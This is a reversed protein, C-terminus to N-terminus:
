ANQRGSERKHVREAILGLLEGLDLPKKLCADVHLRATKESLDGGSSFVIVPIAAIGPDQLQQVRFEFGDMVPMMLDLLVLSPPTPGRLVALAESGDGATRVGYGESRLAVVLADRFDPDDEVILIQADSPRTRSVRFAQARHRALTLGSSPSIPAFFGAAV